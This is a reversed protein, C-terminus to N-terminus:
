RASIVISRNWRTRESLERNEKRLEAIEAQKASTIGPRIGRDIEARRVRLRLSEDGVGLQRAERAIVGYDDSDERRFELVMRVAPEKLEVPYRKQPGQNTAM